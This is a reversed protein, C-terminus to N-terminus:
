KKFGLINVGCGTNGDEFFAEMYYVGTASCKYSISPFQKKSSKVFNSMVLKHNRDYFNIIMKKGENNLDCVIIKYESDRSFVYSYEIKNERKNIEIDFKKIFTYPQLNTINKEFLSELDCKDYFSFSITLFVFIFLINTYKKM